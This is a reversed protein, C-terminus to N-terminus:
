SKHFVGIGGVVQFMRRSCFFVFTPLGEDLGPLDASHPLTVTKLQSLFM